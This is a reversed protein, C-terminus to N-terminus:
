RPTRALAVVHVERAGAARLVRAAATVSGGTTVVDDVLVVVPPVAAHPHRVLAPGRLRDVRDRGAQPPGHAGRLLAVAPAGAARAVARALVEAQDGGRRRRRAPTTPVWTVAGAGAPLTPALRAAAWAAVAREGRFKVAYVLDRGVGDYAVAAVCTTAGVPPPLPPPRPV